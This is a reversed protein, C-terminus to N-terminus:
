ARHKTKQLCDAVADFRYVSANRLGTELDGKTMFYNSKYFSDYSDNKICNYIEFVRDSASHKGKLWEGETSIILREARDLIMSRGRNRGPLPYRCCLLADSEPRAVEDRNCVNGNILPNNFHNKRKFFAVGSPRSKRCYRLRIGYHIDRSGEDCETEIFELVKVPIYPTHSKVLNHRTNLLASKIDSFSSSYLYESIDLLVVCECGTCTLLKEVVHWADEALRHCVHLPQSFLHIRKDHMTRVADATGDQSGNVIVAVADIGQCDLYYKLFTVIEAAHNSVVVCGGLKM